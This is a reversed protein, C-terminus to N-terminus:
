RPDSRPAGGRATGRVPSREFGRELDRFERGISAASRGEPTARLRSLAEMLYGVTGLIM